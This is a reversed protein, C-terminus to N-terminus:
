RTSSLWLGVPRVIGSACRFINASMIDWVRVRVTTSSDSTPAQCSAEVGAGMAESTARGSRTTVMPDIDFDNQPPMRTPQTRASRVVTARSAATREAMSVPM